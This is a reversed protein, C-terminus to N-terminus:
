QEWHTIKRQSTKKPVSSKKQWVSMCTMWVYSKNYQEADIILNWISTCLRDTDIFLLSPFMLLKWRRFPFKQFLLMLYEQAVLFLLSNRSDRTVSSLRLSFASKMNIISFIFSTSGIGYQHHIEIHLIFATFNFWFIWVCNWSKRQPQDYPINSLGLTSNFNIYFQQVCHLQHRHDM